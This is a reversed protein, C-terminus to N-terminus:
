GKMVPVSKKLEEVIEKYTVETNEEPLFPIGETLIWSIFKMQGKLKCIQEEIEKIRLAFYEKQEVKSMRLLKKIEKLELGMEKYIMIEWLKELTKSDYLRHNNASREVEIMGEDDYFQLTRKSVGVLKSVENTKKMAAKGKEAYLAYVVVNVHYCYEKESNGTRHKLFPRTIKAFKIKDGTIKHLYFLLSRGFM